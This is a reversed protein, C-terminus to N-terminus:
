PARCPASHRRPPQLPRRRFRGQNGLARQGGDLDVILWQGGDEIRVFRHLRARRYQVVVRGVIEGLVNRDADAIGLFAEGFAVQDDLFGVRRLRDLVGIELRLGAKSVDIVVADDRDYRGILVDRMVAMHQRADDRLRDGLHAEDHARDAAAKPPLSSM